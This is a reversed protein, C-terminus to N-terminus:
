FDEFSNRSVSDLTGQIAVKECLIEKQNSYRHWFVYFEVLDKFPTKLTRLMGMTSGIEAILDGPGHYNPKFEIDLGGSPTQSYFVAGVPLVDDHEHEGPKILLVCDTVPKM